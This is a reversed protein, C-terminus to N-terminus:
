CFAWIKGTEDWLEEMAEMITTPEVNESEVIRDGVYIDKIVKYLTNNYILYKAMSKYVGLKYTRSSYMSDEIPAIMKLFDINENM